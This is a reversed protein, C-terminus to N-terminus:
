LAFDNVQFSKCFQKCITSTSVYESKKELKLHVDSYKPHQFFPLIDM